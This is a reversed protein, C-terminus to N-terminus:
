ELKLPSKSGAMSNKSKMQFSKEELHDLRRENGNEWKKEYENLHRGALYESKKKQRL